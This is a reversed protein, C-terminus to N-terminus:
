FRNYITREAKEVYRDMYSSLKTRERKAFIATHLSSPVYLIRRSGQVVFLPFVIGAHPFHFVPFGEFCSALSETKIYLMSFSHSFSWGVDGM